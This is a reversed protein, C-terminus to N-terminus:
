MGLVAITCNLAVLVVKEELFYGYVIIGVVIFVVVCAIYLKNAIWTLYNLRFLFYWIIKYLKKLNTQIINKCHIYFPQRLDLLPLVESKLYCIWSLFYIKPLKLRLLVNEYWELSLRFYFYHYHCKGEFNKNPNILIEQTNM